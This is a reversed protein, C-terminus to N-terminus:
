YRIRQRLKWKQNCLIAKLTRYVSKADYLMGRSNENKYGYIGISKIGYHQAEKEDISLTDEGRIYIIHTIFKPIWYEFDIEQDSLELHSVLGAVLARVFDMGTFENGTERDTSGNLFVIKYVLHPADLITKAVGKVILCPLLSTYLSGPSYIITNANEIAPLVRPNVTPYIKDGSSNIYYIQEIPSPLTDNNHKEVFTSQKNLLSICSFDINEDINMDNEVSQENLIGHDSPHSIQNQGYIIMGNKLKAAIHHTCFTNIIPLVQAYINTISQFLFIASEFSGFFLKAGTLFFNGLSGNSFNFRNRQFRKMLETHLYVFFTRILQVKELSINEWIIHSGEVVKLWEYYAKESDTSLRYSLLKKIHKRDVNEDDEPILKVLRSKIDGIGIGGLTRLIESTSGGNDSIPLVYTTSPCIAQFSSVLANAATGGSFILVKPEFDVFDIPDSHM